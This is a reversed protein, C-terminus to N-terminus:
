SQIRTQITPPSPADDSRSVSTGLRLLAARLHDDHIAELRRSVADPLVDPGPTVSRSAPMAVAGQLVKVAAVAEYGHYSNIREILLPALHQFELARGEAVRVVITGGRKRGDGGPGASRPWRIREPVSVRGYEEGVIASWEALVGAYAFGYRAFVNKTLRRFHKDLRDM